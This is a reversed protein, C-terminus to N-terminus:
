TWRNIWHSEFLFGLLIRPPSICPCFIPHYNLAYIFLYVPLLISDLLLNLCIESKIPCLHDTLRPAHPSHLSLCCDPFPAPYNYHHLFTIDSNGTMHWLSNQPISFSDVFLMVSTQLIFYSTFLLIIETVITTKWRLPQFRPPQLDPTYPLNKM